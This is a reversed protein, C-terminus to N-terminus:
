RIFCLPFHQFWHTTPKPGISSVSFTDLFYFVSHNLLGCLQQYIDTSYKIVFYSFSSYCPLVPHHFPHVCHIFCDLIQFSTEASTQRDLM